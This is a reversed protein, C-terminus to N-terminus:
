QYIRQWIYYIICVDDMLMIIFNPLTADAQMIMCFMLVVLSISKGMGSYM